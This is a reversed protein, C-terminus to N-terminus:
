QSAYSSTTRRTRDPDIVGSSKAPVVAVRVLGPVTPVTWDTGRSIGSCPSITPTPRIPNGGSYSPASGSDSARAPSPRVRVM